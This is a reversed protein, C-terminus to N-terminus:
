ESKEMWMPRATEPANWAYAWRQAETNAIRQKSISNKWIGM